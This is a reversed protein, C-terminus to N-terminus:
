RLMVNVIQEALRGRNGAYVEFIEVDPRNKINDAFVNKNQMITAIVAKDSNFCRNVANKFKDSYLEMKGIEDIIILESYKLAEDLALVAIKELSAIDVGYKGVKPGSKIKIHALIGMKGDYTRIAFGVRIGNERIEDTYFGGVKKNTFREAIKGILTTKGVGPKGTILIKNNATL